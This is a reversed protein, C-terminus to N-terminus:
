RQVVAASLCRLRAGEWGLSGGFENREALDKLWMNCFAGSNVLSGLLIKSAGRAEDGLRARSLVWLCLLSWKGTSLLVAALLGPIEPDWFIGQSM